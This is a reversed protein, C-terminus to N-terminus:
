RRKTAGNRSDIEIDARRTVTQPEEPILTEEEAVEGGNNAPVRHRNRLLEREQQQWASDHDRSDKKFSDIKADFAKQLENLHNRASNVRSRAYSEEGVAKALEERAETIEKELESLSKVITM